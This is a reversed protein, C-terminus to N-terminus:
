ANLSISVCDIYKALRPIINTNHILNGLGNTNVRIKTDYKEKLYKAIEIVEELRM